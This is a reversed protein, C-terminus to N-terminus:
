FDAGEGNRGAIFGNEAPRRGHGVREPQFPPFSALGGIRQAMDPRVVAGGQEVPGDVRGAGRPHHASCRLHQLPVPPGRGM